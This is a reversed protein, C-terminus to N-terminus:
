SFELGEGKSISGIENGDDKILKLYGRSMLVFYGDYTVIFNVNMDAGVYDGNLTIEDELVRNKNYLLILLKDDLYEDRTVNNYADFYTETYNGCLVAIGNNTNCIAYIYEYEEPLISFEGSNDLNVSGILPREGSVGVIVQDESACQATILGIGGPIPITKKTFQLQTISNEGNNNDKTEISCAAISLVVCITLFLELMKKM